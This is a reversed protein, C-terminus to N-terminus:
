RLWRIPGPAIAPTAHNRVAALFPSPTSSNPIGTSGHWRNGEILIVARRARTLGVYFLSRAQDFETPTAPLWRRQRPNWRRGPLIGDVLGPMIVYDWERGKAAHYTTLTIKGVRLAGAIDGVTLNGRFAAQKLQVIAQQDRRLLSVAALASLSLETDLRNLWASLDADPSTERLAVAMKRATTRRLPRPAGATEHLRRYMTTLQGITLVASTQDTGPYGIPQPGAVARAACARVFDIIDGDPLRRDNEHIYDHDGADLSAILQDLLWGKRPYLVAIHHALVGGAILEGVKAMMVRAHEDEGGGVTLLEVVGPDDRSPDAEHVRSGEIAAQSATIIAAGCRYNINLTEDAFDRREALAALFRPDAGTFRMITQDPDGFAVVAAPGHDHLHTVLEHLVPGLDQYEDVIVIPFRAAVLRTVRSDRRLINLSAAVMLDFDYLGNANLREDFLIAARALPDRLDQDLGASIRRRIRVVEAKVRGVVEGTTTEDLCRQLLAAWEDSNDDVVQGIGPPIVGVLPGFPHLIRRLCWGHVSGAAVRDDARVDMGILRDTIERAAHRTYTIAALGRRPPLVTELTYAAKAVLTRTKGSGPGARVVMSGPRLVTARQSDNLAALEAALRPSLGALATM